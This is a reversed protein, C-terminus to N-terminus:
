QSVKIETYNELYTLQSTCKSAVTQTIITKSVDTNEELSGTMDCLQKHQWM